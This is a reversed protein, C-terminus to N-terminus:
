YSFKSQFRSFDDNDAQDDKRIGNRYIGYSGKTNLIKLNTLHSINKRTLGISHQSENFMVCLISLDLGVISNKNLCWSNLAYLIKLNKMFTIDNIYRNQSINLENLDLGTIGKQSIGCHQSADLIKLNKMFSVNRIERNDSAKLSVLDLGLIGNQGVGCEGEISLVKLNIMNSVNNINKNNNIILETLDLAVIDKQKIRCERGSADLKKLSTMSSFDINRIMFAAKNHPTNNHADLEVLNLHEISMQDHNAILLKKLNTMFSVDTIKNNNSIDLEILNLTCISTQDIASIGKASLKKLNTMFKIESVLKNNTLDLEVLNLGNINSQKICSGTKYNLSANLKKLKTLSTVDLDIGHADFQIVKSFKKQEIITNNLKQQYIRSINYLDRIFLNEYFTHCCSLLRIQELLDCYNFIKEWIDLHHITDM